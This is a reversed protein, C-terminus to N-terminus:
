HIADCRLLMPRMLSRPVFEQAEVRLDSKRMIEQNFCWIDRKFRSVAVAADLTKADMGIKMAIIRELEALKLRNKLADRANICGEITLDSLQIETNM